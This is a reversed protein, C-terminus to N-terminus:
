YDGFDVFTIDHNHREDVPPLENYDNYLHTLYEHYSNLGPYTHGNFNYDRLNEVWETKIKGKEYSYPSDMFVYETKTGNYKQLENVLANKVFRYPFISFVICSISYKIRQKTGEKKISKGYGKKVWLVRRLFFVRRAQKKQKYIERPSNDYPFIDVFISQNEKERSAFEEEIRTGKLHVKGYSFPYESENDWDEFLFASGLETVCARRFREYDERLMGFDMDDDWPIFGGHRVAGLMSGAILFYKIKNKECIRKIEDAIILECKQLHELDISM